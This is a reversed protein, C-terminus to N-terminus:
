RERRLPNMDVVGDDEDEESSSRSGYNDSYSDDYSDNYSGSAAFSRTRSGRDAMEARAHDEDRARRDVYRDIDFFGTAMYSEIVVKKAKRQDCFEFHYCVWMALLIYAGFVVLVIIIIGVYWHAIFFTEPPLPYAHRVYPISNNPYIVNGNITPAPTTIWTAISCQTSSGSATASGQAAAFLLGAHSSSASTSFMYSFSVMCLVYAVCLLPASSRRSM